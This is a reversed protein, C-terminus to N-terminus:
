DLYRKRAVAFKRSWNEKISQSVNLYMHREYQEPSDFFLCGDDTSWGDTSMKVKFFLDEAPSGIKYQYFRTGTIANRIPADPTSNSTYVDIEVKKYNVVTKYKHYNKDLKKHDEILKKNKKVYSDQTSALSMTALFENNHSYGLGNDMDDDIDYIDNNPHYFDEDPNM